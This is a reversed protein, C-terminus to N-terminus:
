RDRENKTDVHVTSHFTEAARGSEKTFSSPMDVEVKEGEM